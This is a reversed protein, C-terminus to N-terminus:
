RRLTVAKTFKVWKCDDAHRELDIFVWCFWAIPGLYWFTLWGVSNFRRGGRKGKNMKRVQKAYHKRTGGKSRPPGGEKPYVCM